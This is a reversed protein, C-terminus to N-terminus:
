CVFVLICPLVVVCIIENGLMDAISAGACQVDSASAIESREDQAAALGGLLDAISM